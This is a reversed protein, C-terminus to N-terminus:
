RLHGLKQHIPVGAIGFSRRLEHGEDILLQAAARTIIQPPFTGIVGQLGRREHM